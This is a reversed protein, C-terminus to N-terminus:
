EISYVVEYMNIHPYSARARTLFSLNDAILLRLQLKFLEVTHQQACVNM